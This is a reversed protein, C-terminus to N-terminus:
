LELKIKYDRLNNFINFHFQYNMFLHRPTMHKSCM